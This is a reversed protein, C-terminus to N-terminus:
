RFHNLLKAYDRPRSFLRMHSRRGTTLAVTTRSIAGPM